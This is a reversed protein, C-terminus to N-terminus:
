CDIVHDKVLDAQIAVINDFLEEAEDQTLAFVDRFRQICMKHGHGRGYIDNFITFQDPSPHAMQKGMNSQPSLIVWGWM